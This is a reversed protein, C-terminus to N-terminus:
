LPAVLGQAASINSSTALITSVQVPSISRLRDRLPYAPTLQSLRSRASFEPRIKNNQDDNVTGTFSINLFGAQSPACGIGVVFTAALAAARFCGM